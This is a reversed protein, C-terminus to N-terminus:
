MLEIIGRHGGELAIEALSDLTIMSDQMAYSCVRLLMSLNLGAIHHSPYAKMSKCASTATNAPTAGVLDSLVLVGDGQNVQRGLIQIHQCLTETDVEKPEIGLAIISIPLPGLIERVCELLSEGIQGHTVLLIGIMSNLINDM